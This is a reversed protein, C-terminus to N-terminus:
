KAYEFYDFDKKFMHYIIEKNKDSITEKNRRDSTNSKVPEYEIRNTFNNDELIQNIQSIIIRCDVEFNEIKGIYNMKTKGDIFNYQLLPSINEGVWNTRNQVRWHTQCGQQIWENLSKSKYPELALSKHYYYWSEIRDYPNRVFTFIYKNELNYRNELVKLRQHNEFIISQPTKEDYHNDRNEGLKFMDLITTSACKPISIFAGIIENKNYVAGM